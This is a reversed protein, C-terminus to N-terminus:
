SEGGDKQAGARVHLWDGIAELADPDFTEEIMAYEAPSGTRATQMLHNLGPMKIITVDPNQAVQLAKELAPVNQEAPVQRDLEGIIALVPCHLRRLDAAPDRELLDRFWPTLVMKTQVNLGADFRAISAEDAPNRKDIQAQPKREAWLAEIRATAAAEDHTSRIISFIDQQLSASFDLMPASMGSAAGIARLQQILLADIRVGPSAILVVFDVDSTNSAAISAVMGGESHGIFGIRGIDDRSRLYAAGALADQAFDDVTSQMVSGTSGGVGRDDVRLVAFGRRTLYDALVWFPKHGMLTENRDQPGSGSILLVAPFPGEGQPHTLTGALRVDDETNEYAVQEEEYPYPAAPEQPRRAPQVKEGRRMLLPFTRGMQSWTGDIQEADAALTGSFTGQIRKLEITVANDELKITDIPIGFAQQDPSDLTGVLRDEDELKIDFVIRLKMGGVDLAGQWVGALKTQMPEAAHAPAFCLCLLVGLVKIITKM